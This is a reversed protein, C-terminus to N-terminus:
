LDFSEPAEEFNFFEMEKQHPHKEVIISLADPKNRLQFEELNQLEDDM